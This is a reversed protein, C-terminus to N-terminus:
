IDSITVVVSNDNLLKRLKNEIKFKDIEKKSSNPVTFSMDRTGFGLGAADPILGMDRELYNLIVRDDQKYNTDRCYRDVIIYM